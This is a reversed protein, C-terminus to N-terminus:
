SIGLANYMKQIALEWEQQTSPGSVTEDGIFYIM